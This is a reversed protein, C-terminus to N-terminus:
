NKDGRRLGLKKEARKTGRKNLFQRKEGNIGNEKRREKEGRMEEEESREEGGREGRRKQERVATRNRSGSTYTDHVSMAKVCM